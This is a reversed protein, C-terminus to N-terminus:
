IEKLLLSYLARELMDYNLSLNFNIDIHKKKSEYLKFDIKNIIKELYSLNDFTLIGDKNFYDGINPCGWYIPITGVAICDIIKETFYGEIKANEVIISFMYDNLGDEKFKIPKTSSGFFDIDFNNFKKYIDHRLKHGELFNKESFIMSIKKSKKEIVQPNKIWCGGLPLYLGNSINKILNIDHTYIRDFKTCNEELYDYVHPILKRCELPMAIKKGSINEIFNSRIFNDTFIFINSNNFNNREYEILNFEKNPVSYKIHSFNSDFLNVTIKNM